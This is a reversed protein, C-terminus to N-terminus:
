FLQLEDTIEEEQVPLSNTNLWIVILSGPFNITRELPIEQGDILRYLAKNSLILLKSNLSKINSLINDWGFGRNHPMSLTSFSNEFAKKLAESNNIPKQQRSRLFKNVKNPIGIGFDCVCIVITNNRSNYQTFTYGPISSGSHDFVNNLLEALSISLSFLSKGDFHNREFYDQVKKPYISIANQEIRWLPFTKPDKPTLFNNAHKKECFQNFDFSDLYNKITDPINILKVRFETVLYEHILCSLPTVHYPKMSKVRSFDVNLLKGPYKRYDHNKVRNKNIWDVLFDIREFSQFFITKNKSASIKSNHPIINNHNKSKM